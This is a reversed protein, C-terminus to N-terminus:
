IGAGDTLWNRIVSATLLVDSQGQEVAKSRLEGIERQVRAQSEDMEIDDMRLQEAEYSRRMEDQKQHRRWMLFVSLLVILAVGGTLGWKVIPDMAEEAVFDEEPLQEVGGFEMTAVELTDGRQADLGVANSVIKTLRSIDDASRALVTGDKDRPADLIVAVSLRSVRPHPTETRKIVKDIEYNKVHDNRESRSPKAASAARGTTRTPVNSATGPAGQAERMNKENKESKERESRIVQSDPDYKEETQTTKSFDLRASVKARVRGPGITPELLSVIRKEMNKEYENQHEFVIDASFTEDDSRALMTGNQDVVAVQGPKLREVAGAVLHRISQVQRNSLDGGSKLKLVVSATPDVQSKKFLRRPPMVLHVRARAVPKMTSITRALEGELARRFNVKENFSSRGLESEAFIEFGVLNGAGGTTLALELRADHLSDKKVEISGGEGLKYSIKKEDLAAIAASQDEASLGNAVAVYGDGSAGQIIVYGFALLLVGAVGLIAMRRGSSLGALTEQMQTRITREQVVEEAM